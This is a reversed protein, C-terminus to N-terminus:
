YIYQIYSKKKDDTTKVLYLFSINNIDIKKGYKKPQGRGLYKGTYPLYLASNYHLKSVLKFDYKELM